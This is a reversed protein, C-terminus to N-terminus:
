QILNSCFRLQKWKGNELCICMLVGISCPLYSSYFCAYGSLDLLELNLYSSAIAAVSADTVESGLVLSLM